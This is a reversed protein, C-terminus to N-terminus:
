ITPNASRFEHAIDEKLASMDRWMALSFGHAVIGLHHFEIGGTDERKRRINRMLPPQLPWLGADFPARRKTSRCHRHIQIHILTADAAKSLVHFGASQPLRRRRDKTLDNKPAAGFFQRLRARLKMGHQRRIARDGYRGEVTKFHKQGRSLIAVSMGGDKQRKIGRELGASRQGM